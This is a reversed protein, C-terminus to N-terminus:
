MYLGRRCVFALKHAGKISMQHAQLLFFLIFFLLFIIFFYYYYYYMKCQCDAEDSGDTCDDWGDCEWSSPICTTTMCRFENYACQHMGLVFFIYLLLMIFEKSTM